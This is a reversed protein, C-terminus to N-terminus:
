IFFCPLDTVSHFFPYSAVISFESGNYGLQRCVVRADRVDWLDDCVSGWVGSLSIEVRGDDPTVGDVLRVGTENCEVTALLYAMTKSTNCFLVVSSIVYQQM